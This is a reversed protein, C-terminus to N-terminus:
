PRARMSASWSGRSASLPRRTAARGTDNPVTRETFFVRVMGEGSGLPIEAVVFDPIPMTEPLLRRSEDVGAGKGTGSPGVLNVLLNLSGIRAVVAPLVFRYDTLLLARAVVAGFLADPAISRARAAVRIHALVPRASWFEEPLVPPRKEIVTEDRGNSGDSSIEETSEPMGPPIWMVAESEEWADFAADAEARERERIRQVGPRHREPLLGLYDDVNCALGLTDPDSIDAVLTRTHTEASVKSVLVLGEAPWENPLSQRIYDCEDPHAEFWEDDLTWEETVIPDLSWHRPPASHENVM